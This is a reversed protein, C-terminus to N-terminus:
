PSDEQRSLGHYELADAAVTLRGHAPPAGAFGTGGAPACAPRTCHALPGPQDHVCELPGLAGLLRPPGDLRQVLPQAPRADTVDRHDGAARVPLHVEPLR